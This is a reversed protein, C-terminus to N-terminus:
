FAWGNEEFGYQLALASLSAWRDGIADGSLTFPRSRVFVTRNERPQWARYGASTAAEMFALSQESTVRTRPVFRYTIGARSPVAGQQRLLNLSFTAQQRLSDADVTVQETEVCASLCLCAILLRYRM